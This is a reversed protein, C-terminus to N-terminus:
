GQPDQDPKDRLRRLFDQVRGGERGTVDAARKAAADLRRRLESPDIQDLLAPAALALWGNRSRAACGPWRSSPGSRTPPSPRSRARTSISRSGCSLARPGGSCARASGFRAGATTGGPLPCSGSEGTSPPRQARFAHSDRPQSRGRRRRRPRQPRTAVGDQERGLALLIHETGIYDHGMSSRRACRCNSSRRRAHHSRSRAQPSRRARRSSVPSTNM